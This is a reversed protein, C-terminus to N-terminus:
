GLVGLVEDERLILHDVGEVKVETGNYKSFLVKDGVRIDLARVSGDALIKGNGVSVVTGKVPKEKANDPILIGGATKTEEEERKVLLRDALPRLKKM